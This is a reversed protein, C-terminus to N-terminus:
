IEKGLTNLFRRIYGCEVVDKFKQIYIGRYKMREENQGVIM